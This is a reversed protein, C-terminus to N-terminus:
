RIQVIDGYITCRNLIDHEPDYEPYAERHTRLHESLLSMLERARRRLARMLESRLYEDAAEMGEGAPTVIGCAGCRVALLPQVAVRVCAALAPVVYESILEPYAGGALKECLARGTVPVLRRRQAAAIDADTIAGDPMYEAQSFASAVVQASTILTKM